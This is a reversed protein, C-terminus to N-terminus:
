QHVILCSWYSHCSIGNRKTNRWYMLSNRFFSIGMKIRRWPVTSELAASCAGLTQEQSCTMNSNWNGGCLSSRVMRVTMNTQLNRNGAETTQCFTDHQYVSTNWQHCGFAYRCHSIVVRRGHPCRNHEQLVLLFCTSVRCIALTIERDACHGSAISEINREAAFLLKKQWFCKLLAQM